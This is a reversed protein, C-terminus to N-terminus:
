GIGGAAVADAAKASRGCATGGDVAPLRVSAAATSSTGGDDTRDVTVIAEIAGAVTVNLQCHAAAHEAVTELLSVGGKGGCSM